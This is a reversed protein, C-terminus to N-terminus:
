KEHVENELDQIRHNAVKIQENHLEDDKELIYVREIVNNHKQVEKELSGIRYQVEAITKENMAETKELTSKHVARSNIIVGILTVCSTVVAVVIDSDLHLMQAITPVTLLM